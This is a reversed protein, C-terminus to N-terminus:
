FFEDESGYSDYGRGDGRPISGDDGYMEFERAAVEDALDDGDDDRTHSRDGGDEDHYDEDDSVIFAGRRREFALPPRLRALRIRVSDDDDDEDHEHQAHDLDHRPGDNLLNFIEGVRRRGGIADSAPPADGDDIFSSEYGAEDDEDSESVLVGRARAATRRAARQRAREELDFDDDVSEIETDGDGDRDLDVPQDDVLLDHDQPHAPPQFIHRFLSRLGARAANSFPFDADSDSDSDSDSDDFNSGNHGPYERGCHTCAGDWIEHNCDICRYVADEDDRLGMLQHVPAPYPEGPFVHQGAARFIGVWPDANASGEPPDPASNYFGTALGSKVLTAVMEKLSWIEIPRDRVVARCHPCTKKRHLVPVVDDPAVDPPPAKFWNVLCQYCASHGCPALAYPRHMLDLCIQCSLSQQLSSVLNEHQSVLSSKDTVQKQLDCLEQSDNQIVAEPTARGKGKDISTATKATTIFGHILADNSGQGSAAVGAKGRTRADIFTRRVADPDISTVSRSRVRSLTPKTAVTPSEPDSEPASEVVSVKRKKKRRKKKEKTDRGKGQDGTADQPKVRKPDREETDESDSLIRRKANPGRSAPAVPGLVRVPSSM